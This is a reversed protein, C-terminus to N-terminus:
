QPSNKKEFIKSETGQMIRTINTRHRIIVLAAMTCALIILPWLTQFHWTSKITIAVILLVPFAAAAIISSLSVYRCILVSIAWVAFTLLGCVTLYPWLGLLVGLSTAVGKGGKFKLYVPFVHGLIAFCGATMWLCLQAITPEPDVLHFLKVALMPAMGKFVDLAFCVYAWKKGLARSVNTAGINGSGIKRLDVGHAKALILGFPVSGLLYAFLFVAIFPVLFM